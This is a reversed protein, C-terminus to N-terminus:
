EAKKTVKKTTKKATTETKKKAVVPKKASTKKAKEVAPVSVEAAVSVKKANASAHPQGSKKRPRRVGYSGIAIKGRRTKKDGKGM